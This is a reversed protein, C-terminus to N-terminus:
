SQCPNYSGAEPMDNPTPSQSALIGVKAEAPRASCPYSCISPLLISRPRSLFHLRWSPRELPIAFDRIVKREPAQVQGKSHWVDNLGMHGLYKM